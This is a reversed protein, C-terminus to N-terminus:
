NIIKLGKGGHSLVFLDLHTYINLMFTKNLLSFRYIYKISKFFIIIVLNHGHLDYATLGGKGNIIM